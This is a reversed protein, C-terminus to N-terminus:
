GRAFNTVIWEGDIREITIEDSYFYGTDDSQDSEHGYSSVVVVYRNHSKEIVYIQSVENLEFRDDRVKEFVSNTTVERLYDLNHESRSIYFEEIFSDLPLRRNFYVGVFVLSIVLIIIITLILRNKM